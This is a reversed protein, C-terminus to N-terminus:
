LVRTALSKFKYNKSKVLNMLKNRERTTTLRVSKQLENENKMRLRNNNM